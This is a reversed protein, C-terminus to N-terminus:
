QLFELVSRRWARLWSGDNRPEEMLIRRDELEIWVREARSLVDDVNSIGSTMRQEFACFWYLYQRWSLARWPEKPAEDIQRLIEVGYPNTMSAPSLLEAKRIRQLDSVRISALLSEEFWYSVQGGGEEEDAFRSATFRRLNMFKGSACDTAGAAKWLVIDSSSFGVLVRVGAVELDHILRMANKLEETQTLERRPATDTVLVLFVRDTNAGSAISAIERARAPQSLDSLKVLVTQIVAIREAQLDRALMDAVNRNLVYYDPSYSRAVVAPTCAAHPLIDRLVHAYGAILTEWWTMSAIDVTDVDTPFYPWTPLKGRMSNPFYLQPDFVMEFGPRSHAAVISQMKGFDDNVPSLIAGAFGSLGEEGLLNQCDHGMQHYAAM